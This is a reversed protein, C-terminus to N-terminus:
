TRRLISRPVSGAVVVSLVPRNPPWVSSREALAAPIALAGATRFPAFLPSVLGGARTARQRRVREHGAHADVLILGEKSDTIVAFRYIPHFAQEQNEPHNKLISLNRGVSIPQNTPLAMCTANSTKVRADQGLASFPATVIRESVGKNGVNAIDYVRFGGRGEAAFMYEGRNQLCGVTGGTNQVTNIFPELARTEGSLKKDFAKGRTRRVLERKNREVHARQGVTRM